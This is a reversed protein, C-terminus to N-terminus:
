GKRVFSDLRGDRVAYAKELIGARTHDEIGMTMLVNDIITLQRHFPLTAQSPRARELQIIPQERREVDITVYICAEEPNDPTLTGIFLDVVGNALDTVLHLLVSADHMHLFPNKGVFEANRIKWPM